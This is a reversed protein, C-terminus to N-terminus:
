YENIEKVSESLRTLHAYNYYVITHLREEISKLLDKVAETLRLRKNLQEKIIVLEDISIM